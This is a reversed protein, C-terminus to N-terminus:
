LKDNAMIRQEEVSPQSVTQQAATVNQSRETDTFIDQAYPQYSSRRPRKMNNRDGSQIVDKCLHEKGHLPIAFEDVATYKGNFYVCGSIQSQQSALREEYQRKKEAVQDIYSTDQKQEQVPPPTLKSVDNIDKPMEQNVVVDTPKKETTFTEVAKNNKLLFFPATICSLAIIIFLVYKMPFTAKHTHVNASRYLHFYNKNFNINKKWEVRSVAESTSPNTVYRRWFLLVNHRFGFPRTLHYHEGVINTTLSNLLSGDQTALIIDFGFHRHIQLGRAIDKISELYKKKRKEYDKKLQSLRLRYATTTENELQEPEEFEEFNTLDDKSFAVHEQAEDFILVSGDPYDRWDANMPLPLVEEIKLQDINAYVRRGEALYEFIMKILLLTKGTGPPATVLKLAM